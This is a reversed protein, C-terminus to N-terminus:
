EIYGLARLTELAEEDWIPADGVERSPDCEWRAVLQRMREAREPAGPALDHREHPDHDLDYLLTLPQDIGTPPPPAPPHEGAGDLRRDIPWEAAGYVHPAHILKFGGSYVAKAYCATDPLTTFSGPAVSCESVIPDDFEGTALRDILSRGRIARERTFVRPGVGLETMTSFLDVLSVREPRPGHLSRHPSGEPFRLMLPVSVIYEHPRAGGHRYLPEGNERLSLGHDSTVITVTNELRGRTELYRWIGEFTADYFRNDFVHKMFLDPTPLPGSPLGLEQHLAVLRQRV